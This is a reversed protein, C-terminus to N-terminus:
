CRLRLGANVALHPSTLLVSSPSLLAPCCPFFFFPSTLNLAKADLVLPTVAGAKLIGSQHSVDADIAALASAAEEQVKASGTKLLNVLPMLGGSEVFAAQYEAMGTVLATISGAAAEQAKASGVILLSVLPKIAHANYVSNRHEGHDQTLLNRLQSAGAEKAEAEGKDIKQVLQKIFAGVGGEVRAIDQATVRSSRGKGM